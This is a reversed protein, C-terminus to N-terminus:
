RAGSAMLSIVADIITDPRDLAIQHGSNEAVVLRRKPAAAVIAEHSARWARDERERNNWMSRSSTIVVMPARIKPEAVRASNLVTDFTNVLRAIARERDNRPETIHPVTSYVFDGTADVFRANMPDVLVVGAVEDRYLDAHVVTMLGGYSHGVIIRRSPARLRELVMASQKVQTIPDLSLPGLDSDGFGAREYVIVTARTREAVVSDLGGYSSLTAAGGTEMLITVPATGRHIRCHVRYGGVDVMTDVAVPTPTSAGGQLMFASAVFVPLM